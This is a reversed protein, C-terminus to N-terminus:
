RPDELVQLEIKLGYGIQYAICNVNSLAESLETDLEDFEKAAFNGLSIDHLKSRDANPNILVTKAYKIQNIMSFFMAEYKESGESSLSSIEESIFAARDQAIVLAKEVYELAKDAHTVPKQQKLWQLKM